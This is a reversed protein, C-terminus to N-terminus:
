NRIPWRNDVPEITVSSPSSASSTDKEYVAYDFLIDTKGNIESKSQGARHPACPGLQVRQSDVQKEADRHEM